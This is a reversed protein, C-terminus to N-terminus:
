PRPLVDDWFHEDTEAFAEPKSLFRARVVDYTNRLETLLVPSNAFFLNDLDRVLEEVMDMARPWYDYITDDGSINDDLIRIYERAARILGKETGSIAILTGYAAVDSAWEAKMVPSGEFVNYFAYRLKREIRETDESGGAKISQPILDMMAYPDWITRIN